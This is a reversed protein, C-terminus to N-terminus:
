LRIKEVLSKNMVYGYDMALDRNTTMGYQVGNIKGADLYQWGVADIIGQGYEELLDGIPIIQGKSAFNPFDNRYCAFADLHESGSLMLTLQERYNGFNMNVFDVIKSNAKELLIENVADFVKQFDAPKDTQIWWGLVIESPPEVAVETAEAEATKETAAKDKTESAKAPEETKACASLLFVFVLM